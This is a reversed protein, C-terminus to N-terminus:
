ALFEKTTSVQMGRRTMETMFNKTFIEFDKGPVPSAADQLLVFKKINEEGFNNAIDIVTNALCFNLAEGALAIMDAEGLTQIFRTNLMTTPDQPDPVDAQVASYHETYINSGKTVYDVMSFDKEWELLVDFLEPYVGYGWSGILCHYPWIVLSYRNNAKLAKVYELARKQLQPNTTRWIGNEVDDVTIVTTLPEPHKGQSDVWYVPHAVDVFHHTDLTVHIDNIKDKLRRLMVALRAMDEDAGPVYLSGNKDCFDNQPDIILIRLDM